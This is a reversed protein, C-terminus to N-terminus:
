LCIQTLKFFVDVLWSHCSVSQISQEVFKKKLPLRDESQGDKLYLNELPSFEWQIFSINAKELNLLTKHVALSVEELVSMFPKDKRLFCQSLITNPLMLLVKFIKAPYKKNAFEILFPSDPPKVADYLIPPKYYELGFSQVWGNKTIAFGSLFECFSDLRAYFNAEGLAILDLQSQLFDIPKTDSITETTLTIPSSTTLPNQPLSDLLQKEAREQTSTKRIKLEASSNKQFFIKKFTSTKAATNTVSKFNLYSDIKEQIIKTDENLSKTLLAVEEIKQKAFALKNQIKKMAPTSFDELNKDYPVFILSSAPAVQIKESGLKHAAKKLYKLSHSLNNKWINKTDIVGLSLYSYSKLNKSLIFDLQKIDSVLDLHIASFPLGDLADWNQCISGFYSILAIHLDSHSLLYKYTKYFIKQQEQTLNLTLCPEHFYVWEAGRNKLKGLLDVYCKLLKYILSLKNFDGEGLLLFSFPGLISPITEIGCSKAELYELVPKQTSLSFQQGKTFEPAVYHYKTDFFAKTKLSPITKECTIDQNISYGVMKFYTEFDVLEEPNWRFRKPVVGFLAITDLVFDFYSFDNSPINDIGANKQVIWKKQRVKRVFIELTEQLIEGKLFDQIKKVLNLNEETNPFGLCSSVAM